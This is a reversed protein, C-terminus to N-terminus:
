AQRSARNFFVSSFFYLFFYKHKSVRATALFVDFPWVVAGPVDRQGVRKGGRRARADFATWFRHRFADRRATPRLSGPLRDYFRRCFLLGGSALSAATTVDRGAAAETETRRRAASSGAACFADAPDAEAAVAAGGGADRCAVAQRNKRRGRALIPPGSEHVRCVRQGSTHEPSPPRVHNRRSTRARSSGPGAAPVKPPPM